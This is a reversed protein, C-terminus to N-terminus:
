NKISVTLLMREPGISLVSGDRVVASGTLPQLDLFTPNPASSDHTVTWDGSASDRSLRFQVESAIRSEEGVFSKLLQKGVATAIRMEISKGTAQATLILITAESYGCAECKLEADPNADFGCENCKWVM